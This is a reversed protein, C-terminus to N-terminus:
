ITMAVPYSSWYRLQNQKTVSILTYYLRLIRKSISNCHAEQLSIMLRTNMACYSQSIVVSFFSPVPTQHKLDSSIFSLSYCAHRMQFKSVCGFFCNLIFHTRPFFHLIISPPIATYLSAQLSFSGSHTPQFTDSLKKYSSMTSTKVSYGAPGDIDCDLTRHSLGEM